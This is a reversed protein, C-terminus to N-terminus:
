RWRRSDSSATSSATARITSARRWLPSSSRVRITKVSSLPNKWPSCRTALPLTRSYSGDIRTGSIRRSGPTGRPWVREASTALTSRAGVMRAAVPAPALRATSPRESRGSAASRPISYPRSMRISRVGDVSAACFELWGSAGSGTRPTRSRRDRARRGAFRDTRAACGGRRGRSRGSESRAPAAGPRAASTAPRRQEAPGRTSIPKPESVPLRPGAPADGAAQAGVEGGGARSAGRRRQEVHVAAEGPAVRTARENAGDGARCKPGLGGGGQPRDTRPDREAVVAGDRDLAADAHAPRGLEAGSADPACRRSPALRSRRSSTSTRTTGARTPRAPSTGPALRQRRRDDRLAQARAPDRAGPRPLRGALLGGEAAPAPGDAAPPDTDLLRLPDGPPHLASRARCRSACRTTSQARRRGRRLARWARCSRCGPRTPRRGGRPRLANSRLNFVAGGLRRGLRRRARSRTSCSTCRPVHRAPPRPRSQRRRGGEVPRGRSRTRGPIPSTATTPSTSRSGRSRDPVVTYRSATARARRRRFRRAPLRSGSGISARLGRARTSRRQSVDRNWANSAPFVACGGLSTAALAPAALALPFAVALAATARRATKVATLPRSAAAGRRHRRHRGARRPRHRRQEDAGRAAPLLRRGRDARRGRPALLRRPRRRADGGVHRADEIVETTVRLVLREREDFCGAEADGRELAAVQEDTVGVALGIAVHQVWEYEAGTLRAVRLIALERLRADLQQMTLISQGLRLAPRLSTEAHALTRFINLPPLAELAERVEPPAREPEVYPLRAMPRSGVSALISVHLDALGLGQPTRLRGVEVRGAVAQGRSRREVRQLRGEGVPPTPARAPLPPPVRGFGAPGREGPEDSHGDLRTATPDVTESSIPSSAAESGFPARTTAGSM